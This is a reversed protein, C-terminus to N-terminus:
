PQINVGEHRLLAIKIEIANANGMYGGLGTQAVVRHCPIFLVLPNKKCAQGVARPSSNLRAALAGYTLTEGSPIDLLAHHLRKQFDSSSSKLKLKFRHDPHEFYRTLEHAIQHEIHNFHADAPAKTFHSAYIFCEDHLVELNGVPTTFVTM